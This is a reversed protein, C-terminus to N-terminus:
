KLGSFLWFGTIIEDMSPNLLQRSKTSVGSLCSLGVLNLRSICWIYATMLRLIGVGLLGITLLTTFLFLPHKLHQLLIHTTTSDRKTCPIVQLTLNVLIENSTNSNTFNKYHFLTLRFQDPPSGPFQYNNLSPELKCAQTQSWPKPQDNNLDIKAKHAILFYGKM